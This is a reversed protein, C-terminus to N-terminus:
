DRFGDARRVTERVTALHELIEENLESKLPRCPWGLRQTLVSEPIRAPRFASVGM